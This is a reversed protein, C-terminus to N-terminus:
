SYSWEYLTSSLPCVAGASVIVEKKASLTYDKGSTTVKVGTATTDKFVLKQAMTGNYIKFNNKVGISRIFEEASSRTSWRPDVTIMNYQVGSLEGSVFDKAEKFGMYHLAKKVWSSFPNAFHPISVHLPSGNSFRDTSPASANPARRSNDPATFKVTKQFYPWFNSLEYSEDDVEKAWKSYSDTTGCHYTM